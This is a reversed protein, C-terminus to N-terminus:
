SVCIRLVEASHVAHIGVLFASRWTGFCRRVLFPNKCRAGWSAGSPSRAVRNTSLWSARESFDFLGPELPEFSFVASPHLQTFHHQLEVVLRDRHASCFAGATNSHSARLIVRHSPCGM